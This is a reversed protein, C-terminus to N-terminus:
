GPGEAQGKRFRLLDGGQADSLVLNDSDAKFAATRELMQLYRDEQDMLANPCAMRTSGLPGFSLAGDDASYTGFYRNCGATGSVEGEPGLALEIPAEVVPQPEAGADLFAELIWMGVLEDPGKSAVPAQPADAPAAEPEGDAPAGCGVVTVLVGLSVSWPAPLRRAVRMSRRM